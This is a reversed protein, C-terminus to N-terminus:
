RQLLKLGITAGMGGGYALQVLLMGLPELYRANSLSGANVPNLGLQAILSAVIAKADAHDGCYFQTAAEDGFQLSGSQLIEAFPFLVEIVKADPILKAIEEAGSTSTGVELGSLDTKLPNVCSMVVKGAFSGVQTLADNVAKWPVVFLIVEGFEVAEAPSGVQANAGADAAIAELKTRDRSYSFMVEHGQQAWLKGLASGMNGSGIIGIRM